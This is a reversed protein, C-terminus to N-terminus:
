QNIVKLIENVLNAKSMKGANRIGKKGALDKLDKVTMNKIEEFSPKNEKKEQSPAPKELTTTKSAKLLEEKRNDKVAVAPCGVKKMETPLNNYWVQLEQLTTCKSAEETLNRAGLTEKLVKDHEDVPKTSPNKEGEPLAWDPLSPFDYSYWKSATKDKNVIKVKFHGKKDERLDAFQVDLKYLYRGIGWQVGARKMANSIGGKFSEFDTEDAGDWKTIGLATIGCLFSLGRETTVPRLENHWGDVGFVDDLRQQIARSTVYPMIMAWAEGNKDYGSQQVRWEIDMAPFPRQLQEMIQKIDM